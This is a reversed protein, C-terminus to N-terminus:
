RRFRKSSPLIQEWLGFTAALLYDLERTHRGRHFAPKEPLCYAALRSGELQHTVGRSWGRGAYVLCGPVWLAALDDLAYPIKEDVSGVSDQYKCEIALAKQDAPRLVFVDIQRDKGIITKGLNVERYVVLGGDGYQHHIYAAILDRYQHGTM